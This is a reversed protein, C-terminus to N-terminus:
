LPVVFISNLSAINRENFKLLIKCLYCYLVSLSMYVMERRMSDFGPGVPVITHVMANETTCM